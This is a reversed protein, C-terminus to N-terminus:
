EGGLELELAVVRRAVDAIPESHSRAYGRLLAFAADMDVGRMHALVGKAQEIVVRSTLARQLQEAIVNSERLTRENLVSVTAIDALAQATRLFEPAIEGSSVGFLNLSGIVQDRVRLPLASVSGFGHEAAGRRFAEWRSPVETTASIDSVIVARGTRVCEICPGAEGSIQLLEMLRSQESTSAVVDLVGADDVLMIAAQDVGELLQCADVLAQLIDVADDGEVLSGAVAAVSDILRQERVSGSV